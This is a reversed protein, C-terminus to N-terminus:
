FRKDSKTKKINEVLSFVRGEENGDTPVCRYTKPFIVGVPVPIM